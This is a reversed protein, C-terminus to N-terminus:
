DVAKVDGHIALIEDAAREGSLLAGHVTAHHHRSTAEGAFFLRPGVPQALADFDDLSAGLPINSYAGLSFPDASWATVRTDVPDPPATRTMQALMVLARQVVQEEPLQELQRAADGYSWLSLIPAEVHWAYNMCEVFHGPETPAYALFAETPWFVKDFQLITKHVAGAGLKAIANQKPAPLEPHFKIEGSKLVGLPLAVIVRDAEWAQEETEVWVKDGDMRIQQVVQSFRIDLGEALAVAIQQFGGVVIHRPGQFTEDDDDEMLGKLSLQDIYAAAKKEIESGVAWSLLRSEAPENRREFGAEELAAAVTIDPQEASARDAHLEEIKEVYEAWRLLLQDTAEASLREGGLDFIALSADDSLRTRIDHEECFETLPNDEIGEIWTAGLDIPVGGMQSTWIRGGIRDRAELVVVEYGQDALRRAAALGAAGAGIVIIREGRPPTPEDQDWARSWSGWTPLALSAAAGARLLARRSIPRPFHPRHLWPPIQSRM